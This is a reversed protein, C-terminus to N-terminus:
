PQAVADPSPVCRNRIADDTRGPFLQAIQRWKCGYEAIAKFILADDEMTWVARQSGDKRTAGSAYNAAGPWDSSEPFAPAPSQRSPLVEWIPLPTAMPVSSVPVVPGIQPSRGYLKIKDKASAENGTITHSSQGITRHPPLKMPSIDSVSDVASRAGWLPTGVSDCSGGPQSLNDSLHQFQPQDHSFGESIAGVAHAPIVSRMAGHPLLGGGERTSPWALVPPVYYGSSSEQTLCTAQPVLYEDSSSGLRVASAPATALHPLPALGLIPNRHVVRTQMGHSPPVPDYEQPSGHPETYQHSSFDSCATVYSPPLLLAHHAHAARAQPTGHEACSSVPSAILSAAGAFSLPSGPLSLSRSGLHGPDRTAPLVPSSKMDIMAAAAEAARPSINEEEAQSLNSACGDGPVGVSLEEHRSFIASNQVIGDALTEGAANSHGLEPHMHVGSSSSVSSGRKSRPWKREPPNVHGDAVLEGTRKTSRRELLGSPEASAHGSLLRCPHAPTCSTRRPPATTPGEDERKHLHNVTLGDGEIQVPQEATLSHSTGLLALPAASRSLGRPRMPRRRDEHVTPSTAHTPADAPMTSGHQGMGCWTAGDRATHARRLGERGGERGGGEGRRGGEGRARARERERERRDREEGGRGKGVGVVVRGM